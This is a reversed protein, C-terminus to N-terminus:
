KNEFVPQQQFKFKNLLFYQYLSLLPIALFILPLIKLGDHFNYTNFHAVVLHFIIPMMLIIMNNSATCIGYNANKNHINFFDWILVQCGSLIGIVLLSLYLSSVSTFFLHVLLYCIVSAGMASAAILRLPDFKKLAISAYLASGITWGLFLLTIASAAITKSFHLHHTIFPIGWLSALLSTPLYLLGGIIGNIVLPKNSFFYKISAIISSRKNLQNINALRLDARCRYLLFGLLLGLLSMLMYIVQWKVKELVLTIAVEAISSSLTGISLTTACIFLFQKKSYNRMSFAIINIFAFSSFIGLLLRMLYATIFTNSFIFGMFSLSCLLVSAPIIKKPDAYDLLIGAPIQMAVYGIYFASTILGMKFNDIDLQAQFEDVVLSTSIRFFFDLCFFLIMLFLIIDKTSRTHVYGTQNFFQKIKM